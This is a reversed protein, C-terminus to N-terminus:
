RIARTLGLSPGASSRPPCGTAIQRAIATAATPPGDTSCAEVDIAVNSHVTLARQCSWRDPAQEIRSVALVDHDTSISGVSWRQAEGIPQPHSLETGLVRGLQPSIERLVRRGGPQSVPGRGPGRLAVMDAFDAAGAPSSQADRDGWHRRLRGRARHRRCSATSTTSAPPTTGSKDVDRVVALDGSSM